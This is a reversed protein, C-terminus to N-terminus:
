SKTRTKKAGNALDAKMVAWHRIKEAFRLGNKLKRAHKFFPQMKPGEAVRGPHHALPRFDAIM